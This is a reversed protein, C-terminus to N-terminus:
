RRLKRAVTTALNDASWVSGYVNVTVGGGRGLPIVAEPGGEGILAMTPRRVIGGGALHVLGAQEVPHDGAANQEASAVGAAIAMVGGLLLLGIGVYFHGQIIASLGAAIFLQGMKSMLSTFWERFSEAADGAGGAAQGMQYFLDYLGQEAAQVLIAEFSASLDSMTKKWLEAADAAKQEAETIKKVNKEAEEALRNGENRLANIHELREQEAETKGAFRERAELGTDVEPVRSYEYREEANELEKLQRMKETYHSSSPGPYTKNYTARLDELIAKERVAKDGFRAVYKAYKAIQEELAKRQGESTKAYALAVENERVEAARALTAAADAVEREKKALNDINNMALREVVARERLLKLYGDIGKVGAAMAENYYKQYTSSDTIGVEIDKIKKSTDSYRATAITM